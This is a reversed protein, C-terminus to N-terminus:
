SEEDRVVQNGKDVPEQSLDPMRPSGSRSVHQGKPGSYDKGVGGAESKSRSLRGM